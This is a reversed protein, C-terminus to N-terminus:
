TVLVMNVEDNLNVFSPSIEPKILKTELTVSDWVDYFIDSGNAARGVISGDGNRFVMALQLITETGSVGYYSAINPIYFSYLKNGLATMKYDPDTTGWITVVHKWDTPGNSLNTIVGTHIYVDGNYNALAGNGLTADYYLTVADNASPFVPVATVQANSYNLICLLSAFLVTANMM